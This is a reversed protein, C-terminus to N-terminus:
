KISKNRPRQRQNKIERWHFKFAELDYKQKQDNQEQDINVPYTFQTTKTVWFAWLAAPSQTLRRGTLPASVESDHDVLSILAM